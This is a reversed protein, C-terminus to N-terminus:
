YVAFVAVSDQSNGEQDSPVRTGRSHEVKAVVSVFLIDVFKLDEGPKKSANKVGDSRNGIRDFERLLVERLSKVYPSGRM